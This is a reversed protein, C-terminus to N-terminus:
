KVQFNEFAFPNEENYKKNSFKDKYKLPNFDIFEHRMEGQFDIGWELMQIFDLEEPEVIGLNPNNILCLIGSVIGSAIQISTATNHPAIKRAEEIDIISGIWYSWPTGEYTGMLLVGLEDRGAVIEDRLVLQKDHIEYFQNNKVEQLSIKADDCPLYVYLVTPAYIISEDDNRISFYSGIASTEHHSVNMGEYVGRIPTYSKCYNRIAVEDSVFYRSGEISYKLHNPLISEGTGWNGEGNQYAGEEVFADCSWTNVFTDPMKIMDTIQTDHESIHVVKLGIKQALLAWDSRTTPINFEIGLGEAVKIIGMKNFYQVFGPNMGHALLYTSSKDGFMEKIKLAKEREIAGCRQIPTKKGNKLVNRWPEIATDMGRIGREQCYIMIDISDVDISLNVIITESREEEPILRDLIESYNEKTLGTFEVDLNYEKIINKFDSDKTVAKLRKSFDFYKNWIAPFSSSAVNGFGIVLYKGKFDEFGLIKKELM